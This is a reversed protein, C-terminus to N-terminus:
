TTRRNAARRFIETVGLARLLWGGSGPVLTMAALIPRLPVKNVVIEASDRQIARTVARAVRQPTATVIWPVREGLPARAREREYMGTGVVLTPIVASASVGTGRNEWRVAHTFAILAAKSAAYIAQYPLGFHGAASAVNVIHGRHAALMEALLLSTLRMPVRVNVRLLEDIRERPLTHFAGLAELGANNVLIDVHGLQQRVVSLAEDIAADDALDVPVASAAIGRERLQEAVRLLESKSRAFLALKVGQEGLAACIYPGIGRSAGTVIATAGRLDRM